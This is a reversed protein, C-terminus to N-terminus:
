GMPVKFRLLEIHENLVKEMGPVTFADSISFSTYDLVQRQITWIRTISIHM